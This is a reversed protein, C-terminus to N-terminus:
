GLVAQIETRDIPGERLIRLPPGPDCLTSPTGQRPGDDLYVSVLNAFAAHAAGIEQAPSEGSLNASPSAIPRGLRASLLRAIPDSSVRCGTKGDRVIPAPLGEKAPVLLTLPGPWFRNAIQRVPNTIQDTLNSLMTAEGLIVAIGKEDPRQKVACLRALADPDLADCGIGYVTETPFVVLEGSALARVAREIDAEGVPM